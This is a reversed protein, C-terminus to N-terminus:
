PAILQIEVSEGKKLKVVTAQVTAGDILNAHVTSPPNSGENTAVIKIVFPRAKPVFVFAQKREKVKFNSLEKTGNVFVDVRDGDEEFSDWLELRISDSDWALPVLSGHKLPKKPDLTELLAPKEMKPVQNKPREASSPNAMEALIAHELYQAKMLSITGEACASGDAYTGKFPASMLASDNKLSLKLNRVEIFCFSSAEAESHTNLNETEKFSLLQQEQDLRGVIESVTQNAGYFDTISTGQVNGQADVKFSLKIDIASLGKPRIAGIFEYHQGQLLNTLCLSFVLFTLYHQLRM